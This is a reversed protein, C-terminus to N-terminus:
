SPEHILFGQLCDGGVRKAKSLLAVNSVGEIIIKTKPTCYNITKILNKLSLENMKILSPRSIKIFEPEILVLDFFSFKSNSVFDDLAIHYGLNKLEWISRLSQTRNWGLHSESIEITINNDYDKLRRLNMLGIEINKTYLFSNTCNIFLNQEKVKEKYINKLVQNDLLYGQANKELQAITHSILIHKKEANRSLIEYGILEDKNDETSVIKQALLMLELQTYKSM